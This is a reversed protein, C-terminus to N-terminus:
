FHGCAEYDCSGTCVVVSLAGQSSCTSISSAISNLVPSAQLPPAYAVEATSSSRSHGVAPHLAKSELGNENWSTMSEDVSRRSSSTSCDLGPASRSSGDRADLGSMLSSLEGTGELSTIGLIRGGSTHGMTTSRALIYGPQGIATSDRNHGLTVSRLVNSQGIDTDETAERTQYKVWM